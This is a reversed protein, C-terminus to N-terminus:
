KVFPYRSVSNSQTFPMFPMRRLSRGVKKLVVSGFSIKSFKKICSVSLDLFAVKSRTSSSLTLAITDFRQFSSEVQREQPDHPRVYYDSFCSHEWRFEQGLSFVPSHKRAPARLFLDQAVM